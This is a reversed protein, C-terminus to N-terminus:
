EAENHYCLLKVRHEEKGGHMLIKTERKTPRKKTCAKLLLMKESSKQAAWVDVNSTRIVNSASNPEKIRKFSLFVM